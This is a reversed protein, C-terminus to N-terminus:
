GKSKTDHVLTQRACAEGLPQHPGKTSTAEVNGRMPWTFEPVNIGREPNTM